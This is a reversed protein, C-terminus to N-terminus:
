ERLDVNRDDRGDFLRTLANQDLWGTEDILIEPGTRDLSGPLGAGWQVLARRRADLRAEPPGVFDFAFGDFGPLRRLSRHAIYRVCSYPDNLLNALYPGLWGQGSAERAQPWGMHWAILARQNADGAVLWLVAASISQRDATLQVEPQGYWDTLHGATWGLSRDLHCLNCANPRGADLSAQVTPSDILHSRIAKMLGYTTHPMHCNQCRSGSSAPEHHTHSADGFSADHCQVCAADGEMGAALQDEPDSDHMAHCSLCSLEGGGFCASEIMANHERGSVRVMGDPWFRSALFAPGERQLHGKLRPWDPREADPLNHDSTRLVIRTDTLEGGARYREGARIVEAKFVNMGHCQGCVQSSARAPLRAPNVITPDPETGLRLRYRRAPDRNVRVHEAGPGHCAECAIGLEAVQPDPPVARRILSQVGAVAHCEICNDHWMSFGRPFQPPRLFVDERPVWRRDENLWVFPFNFLRGDRRSAVWYTQMHHSGTTMVVRKEARPPDAATNPYVGQDLLDHEWDPDVMDVFFEGGRQSLAYIRGRSSLRVGDFDGLVAQNSAVQTMTRHFSDHWTAYNSPHCARCAKSSVYGDDPLGLDPVAATLMLRSQSRNGEVGGWLLAGATCGVAAVIAVIWCTPPNGRRVPLLLAALAITVFIALETWLGIGM